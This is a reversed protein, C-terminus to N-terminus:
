SDQHRRRVSRVFFWVCVVIIPVSIGLAISLMPEVIDHGLGKAAYNVLGVIYYSIAAVSLSEVTQQLRLQLKVRRDMSTLLATNQRALGVDVWTRLLETTRSLKISLSEQREEVSKCTRMAPALRRELFSGLTDGTIPEEGLTAIRESVISDYATSAGFRYLSQAANAQLESALRTIEALMEDANEWVQGKMRQTVAGLAEEIARIEPSLSQALPLALMALTRYTEIDLLCQVTAGRGLDTLGRDILLMRTLGDGDQRFDTAVEALGDRIRSRCLSANDFSTLAAEAQAGEPWIELRIGSIFSGPARFSGGFPHLAIAAWPAAMAPGDWFWTSFETHREWRLTGQGWQVTCHRSTRDPVSVGQSRAMTEIAEHHSTQGTEMLFALQLIVRPSTVAVFPRAHIEGLAQARHEAPPFSLSAPSQAKGAAKQEEVM